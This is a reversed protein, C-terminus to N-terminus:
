GFVDNGVMIVAGINKNIVMQAAVRIAQKASSYGNRKWNPTWTQKETITRERPINSSAIQPPTVNAIENPTVNQPHLMVSEDGESPKPTVNASSTVGPTPHPTVNALRRELSGDNKWRIITQRSVKLAESLETNNM